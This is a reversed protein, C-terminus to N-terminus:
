LLHWDVVVDVDGSDVVHLSSGVLLLVELAVGHLGGHLLGVLGSHKALLVLLAIEVKQELIGEALDLGRKFALM